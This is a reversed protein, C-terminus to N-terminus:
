VKHQLGKFAYEGYKQQESLMDLYAENVLLQSDPIKTGNEWRDELLTEILEDGLITTQCVHEVVVIECGPVNFRKFCTGVPYKKELGEVNLM